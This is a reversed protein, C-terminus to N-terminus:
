SARAEAVQAVILQLDPRGAFRQEVLSSSAVVSTGPTTSPGDSSGTSRLTPRQAVAAFIQNAVVIRDELTQHNDEAAKWFADFDEPVVTKRLFTKMALLAKLGDEETEDVDNAIELFDILTILSLDPSVRISHGFYDFTDPDVEHTELPKGFSGLNAM